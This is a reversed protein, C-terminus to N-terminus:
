TLLNYSYLNFFSVGDICRIQIVNKHQTKENELCFEVVSKMRKYRKM